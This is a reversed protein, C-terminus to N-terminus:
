AEAALAQSANSIRCLQTAMAGIGVLPLSVVFGRKAPQGTGPSTRFTKRFTSGHSPAIAGSICSPSSGPRTMSPALRSYPLAPHPLGVIAVKSSRAIVVLSFASGSQRQCNKCHCVATAIPEGTLTYCVEGCLCQGTREIM